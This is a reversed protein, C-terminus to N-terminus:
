CGGWVTYTSGVGIGLFTDRCTWACTVAVPVLEGAGPGSTTGPSYLVVPDIAENLSCRRGGDVRRMENKSLVEVGELSLITKKM